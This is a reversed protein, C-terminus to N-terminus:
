VQIQEIKKKLKANGSVISSDEKKYTYNFINNYIYGDSDPISSLNIILNTSNRPIFTIFGDNDFTRDSKIRLCLTTM